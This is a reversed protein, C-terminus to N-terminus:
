PKTREFKIVKTEGNKTVTAENDCEGKGYDVKWSESGSVMNMIGSVVQKCKMLFVLPTKEQITKKITVGDRVSTVEGWSVMKDDLRGAIRGFQYERTMKGKRSTVKNEPSTMKLDEENVSVRSFLDKDIATTHRTFGEIKTGDVKFNEYKKEKSSSFREFTSTIVIKGSRVKGDRGTCGNGFDLTMKAPKSVRDYTVAPCTSEFFDNESGASKLYGFQTFVVEETLFDIDMMLGESIVEQTLYENDVATLTENKDCGFVFFVVMVTLFAQKLTKM